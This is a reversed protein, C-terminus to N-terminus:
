RIHICSVAAIDGEVCELWLMDRHLGLNGTPQLAVSDAWSCAEIICQVCCCLLLCLGCFFYFLLCAEYSALILLGGCYHTSYAMSIISVSDALWM